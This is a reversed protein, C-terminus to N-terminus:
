KNEKTLDRWRAAIAMYVNNESNITESISDWGNRTKIMLSDNELKVECVMNDTIEGDSDFDMLVYPEDGNPYDADECFVLHSGLGKLLGIAEKKNENIVENINVM